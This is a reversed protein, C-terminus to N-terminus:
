STFLRKYWKIQHELGERFTTSPNFDLLQRAKDINAATTLQDGARSEKLEIIAKKGLLEEVLKIGEGTSYVQDNGVNIIEGDCADLRELVSGLGKVIDGVYTFSRLHHESGNFLPFPKEEIISKILKTYLKEPRERPGYVSFLRISCAKLKNMRNAAIVLQEAALKTVGYDSAPKAPVEESSTAELGYVSSTSINVFMQLPHKLHLTWDLLNQTAQINNRAYLEFLTDASIGPQAAFHYVIEIDQPLVKKLDDILDVEIFQVGLKEIDKRNQQKFSPDYYNSFNDVGYVTHGQEVLYEAMHSGIFGAAGTILINMKYRNIFFTFTFM